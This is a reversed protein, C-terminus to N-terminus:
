TAAHTSKLHADRGHQSSCREITLFTDKDIFSEYQECGEERPAYTHQLINAVNRLREHANELITAKVIAIIMPNGKTQWNPEPGEANEAAFNKRPLPTGSCPTEPHPKLAADGRRVM